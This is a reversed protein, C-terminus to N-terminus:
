NTLNITDQSCGYGITYGYLAKARADVVTVRGSDVFTCGGQNAATTVYFKYTTNAFPHIVPHLTNAGSSITGAPTWSFAYNIWSETDTINGSLTDTYVGCGTLTVPLGASVVATPVIIRFTDTEDGGGCGTGIGSGLVVSNAAATVTRSYGTGTLVAPGSLVQFTYTGTNSPASIVTGSGGSCVFVTDVSNQSIGGVPCSAFDYPNPNLSTPSINYVTINSGSITGGYFGSNNDFYVHGNVIAFGGGATGGPSSTITWTNILTGTPNYELLEPNPTAIKLLFFNGSCDANVDYPGGNGAYPPSLTLVTANGTGNYRTMAGTSGNLSYIYPGGGGPNVWGSTFGTNTWGSGNYYEYVNGDTVYFTPSPSAANLNPGLSIGYFGTPASITNPTPNSASLPLTPDLNYIQGTGSVYYILGTSAGTCTPLQALSKIAPVAICIAALVLKKLTYFKM